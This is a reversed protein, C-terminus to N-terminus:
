GGGGALTTSNTRTQVMLPVEIEISRAAEEASRSSFGQDQSSAMRIRFIVAQPLNTTSGSSTDWSDQWSNGDYCLVQVADVGGLLWQEDVEPNLTSLLNRTVYRVLEKGQTGLTTATRVSYSVRQVDAWPEEPRLAGTATHFEIAVPQTVGTGTIQGARFPGSLVRSPPVACQFDRRILDVAQQLPASRDVMALTRERLRMASFLVTSMAGIVVAVISIALILEILTFARATTSSSPPAARGSDRHPSMTMQLTSPPFRM